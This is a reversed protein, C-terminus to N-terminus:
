GVLPNAGIEIDIRRAKVFEKVVIFLVLGVELERVIFGLAGRLIPHAGDVQINVQGCDRFRLVFLLGPM